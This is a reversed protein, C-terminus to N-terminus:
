PLEAALLMFAKGRSLAQSPSAGAGEASATGAAGSAAGAGGVAPLPLAEGWGKSGDESTLEVLHGQRKAVAGHATQLPRALPLTLGYLRARTIRM